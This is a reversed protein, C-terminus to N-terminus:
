LIRIRSNKDFLQVFIIISCSASVMVFNDTIWILNMYINTFQVLPSSLKSFEYWFRYLYGVNMFKSINNVCLKQENRDCSSFIHWMSCACYKKQEFNTKFIANTVEREIYLWWRQWSFFYRKKKWEFKERVFVFSFFFWKRMSRNIAFYDFYYSGVNAHIPKRKIIQISENKM